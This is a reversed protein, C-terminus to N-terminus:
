NQFRFKFKIENLKKGQSNKEKWTSNKISLTVEISPVSRVRFHDKLNSEESSAIIVRM